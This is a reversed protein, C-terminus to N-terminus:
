GFKLTIGAEASDKRLKELADIAKKNKSNLSLVDQWKKVATKLSKKIDFDEKSTFKEATEVLKKEKEKKEKEIKTKEAKNKLEKLYEKVNNMLYNTERIPEEIVKFFNESVEKLTGKLKIPPINDLAKDGSFNKLTVLVVVKEKERDLISMSFNIQSNNLDFLKRFFEIDKKSVITEKISKEENKEKVIENKNEKNEIDVEKEKEIINLYFNDFDIDTMEDLDNYSINLDFDLYIMQEDTENEIFSSLSSLKGIKNELSYSSIYKSILNDFIGDPMTKLSEFTVSSDKLIVEDNEIKSYGIKELTSLRELLLQDEEKKVEIPKKTEFMKLWSNYTMTDMTEIQNNTLEIGSPSILGKETEKFGANEILKKRRINIASEPMIQKETNSVIFGDDMLPPTPPKPLSLLERKIIISGEGFNKLGVPDFIPYIFKENSDFITSEKEEKTLITWEDSYGLNNLYSRKDM